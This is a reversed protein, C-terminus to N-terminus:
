RERRRPKVVDTTGGSAGLGEVSDSISAAVHLMADWSRWAQLVPTSDNLRKAPQQSLRRGWPHSEAESSHRRQLATNRPQAASSQQQARAQPGHEQTAKPERCFSARPQAVGTRQQPQATAHPYQQQSGPGLRASHQPGSLVRSLRTCVLAAYMHVTRPYAVAASCTRWGTRAFTACTSVHSERPAM